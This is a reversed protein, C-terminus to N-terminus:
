LAATLGALGLGALLRRGTRPPRSPPAVSPPVPPGAPTPVPPLLLPSSADM